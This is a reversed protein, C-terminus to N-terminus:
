CVRLLQELMSAPVDKSLRLVKGQPLSLEAVWTSSELSPVLKIETFTTAEPQMEVARDPSQKAKARKVWRWLSMYGLGNQASFERLSLGSESFRKVWQARAEQSPLFKRIPLLSAEATENM